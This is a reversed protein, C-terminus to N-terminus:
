HNTELNTFDFVYYIPSYSLGKIRNSVYFMKHRRYLPIIMCDEVMLEEEVAILNEYVAEHELRMEPNYREKMGLIQKTASYDSIYSYNHEYYSFYAYPDHYWARIHDLGISTVNDIEMRNINTRSSYPKSNVVIKLGPLHTETKENFYDQIYVENFDGMTYFDIQCGDISLEKKAKEWYAKSLEPNYELKYDRDVAINNDVQFVENPLIYATAEYTDYKFNAILQNRDVLHALALRLNKNQLPSDNTTKFVINYTALSPESILRKDDNETLGDQTEYVVDTFDFAGMDYLLTVLDEDYDQDECSIIEINEFSINESFIYHDNKKLKIVYELGQVVQSDIVYPGSYSKITMDHTANDFVIPEYDRHNMPVSRPSALHFRLYNNPQDLTMSVTYADIKKIGVEDFPIEGFFYQDVNKIDLQFLDSDGYAYGHTLMNQWSFMLDDALIEDGNSWFMGERLKFTWTLGDESVDYYECLENEMVGNRYRFLNAMTNYTLTDSSYAKQYANYCKDLVRFTSDDKKSTAIPYKDMLAIRELDVDAHEAMNTITSSINQDNIKIGTVITTLLIIILLSQKM